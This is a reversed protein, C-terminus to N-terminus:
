IISIRNQIIVLLTIIGVVANPFRAAFENVGFTKMSLVQIWFFLPPKEYFPLYNVQVKLFDRTVLMERSIEAFNVEDWDFLHVGGLFPVYFLFGASIIAFYYWSTRPWNNRFIDNM